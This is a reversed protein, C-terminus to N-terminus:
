KEKLMQLTKQIRASRDALKKAEDIWKIYERKHSPPLKDRLAKAQPDASLAKDIYEM